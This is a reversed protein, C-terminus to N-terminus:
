KGKVEKPMATAADLQRLIADCRLVVEPDSHKLGKEIWPFAPGGIRHLERDANERVNYTHSGLQTILKTVRTELEPELHLHQVLGVRVIKTPKPKAELPLWKDYTAQSVRYFMSIGDQTFLGAEWTKVLSEAEDKFLGAAVLRQNLESGLSAITKKDDTLDEWTIPTRQTGKSIHDIWSSIRWRDKTREIVLVDHWDHDSSSALTIGEATRVVTPSKPSPILGDYYIFQDAFGKVNYQPLHGGTVTVRSSNVARLHNVWHDKDVKQLAIRNLAAGNTTKAGEPGVAIGQFRLHKIQSATTGTRPEVAPPWWIMPKGDPFTVKLDFAALTQNHIFIVPKRVIMPRHNVRLEAPNFLTRGPITGRFFSPMSAWESLMDQKAWRTGRSATFVGWEHIAYPGKADLIVVPKQVIFREYAEADRSCCALCLGCLMAIHRSYTFM